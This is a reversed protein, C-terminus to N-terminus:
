PGSCYQRGFSLVFLLGIFLAFLISRTMARGPGTIKRAIFYLGVTQGLIVAPYVAPTTREPDFVLQDILTRPPLAGGLATLVGMIVCSFFLLILDRIAKRDCYRPLLAFLSIVGLLGLSAWYEVIQTDLRNVMLLKSIANDVIRLCHWPEDFIYGPLGLMKKMFVIRYSRHLDSGAVQAIKLTANWAQYVLHPLLAFGIGVPLIRFNFGKNKSYVRFATWLILAACGLVADYALAAAALLSGFQLYGVFSGNGDLPRLVVMGYLLLILSADYQIYFYPEVTRWLIYHNASLLVAFGVSLLQNLGLKTALLYGVILIIFYFVFNVAIAAAYPNLYPCVQAYLFPGLPRNNIKMYHANYTRSSGVGRFMGSVGIHMPHDGGGYRVGWFVSRNYPTEKHHWGGGVSKPSNSGYRLGVQLLALLLLFFYILVKIRSMRRLYETLRKRYLLYSGLFGMALLSVLVAVGGIGLLAEPPASVLKCFSTGKPYFIRFPFLAVLVYAMLLATGILRGFLRLCVFWAAPFTLLFIASGLVTARLIM